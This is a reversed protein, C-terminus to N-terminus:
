WNYLLQWIIHYDILAVTFGKMVYDLRSAHVV